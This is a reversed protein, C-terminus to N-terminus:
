ELKLLTCILLECLAFWASAFKDIPRVPRPSRTTQRLASGIVAGLISGFMPILETVAQQNPVFGPIVADAPFYPHALAPASGSNSSSLDAM